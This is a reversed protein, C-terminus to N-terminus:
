PIITLHGSRELSKLVDMFEPHTDRHRLLFNVYADTLKVVRRNFDRERAQAQALQQRCRDAKTQQALTRYDGAGHFQISNQTQREAIALEAQLCGIQAVFQRDKFCVRTARAQHFNLGVCAVTYRFNFRLARAQCELWRFCLASKLATFM